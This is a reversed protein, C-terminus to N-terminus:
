HRDHVVNGVEVIGDGSSCTSDHGDVTHQINTRDCREELVGTGERLWNSLNGLLEVVDESSKGTSFTDEGEDVSWFFFVFAINSQDVSHFIFVAVQGFGVFTGTYPCPFMRMVITGKGVGFHFTVNYEFVHGKTINWVFGNEVIQTQICFWALFDSEYTGGTSTFGGDGVQEVAEVFQVGTLDTVIADIDLFDAFIVQTSGHCHYQLISVEKGASYHFVDAVTTKVGGIFFDDSGSFQCISMVEDHVQWLTVVGNQSRVARVQALTLTLQKRDCSSSNCIRRNQDEIFCSGGDIGSGFGKDVLTHILQHCSTSYENDSVTQGSNAVRVSDHYQFLTADNFAAVM